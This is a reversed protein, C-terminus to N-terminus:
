RLPAAQTRCADAAHAIADDVAFPLFAAFSYHGSPFVRRTPRGLAEWLASSSVAPVVRDWRATLMLVPRPVVHAAWALPDVEM